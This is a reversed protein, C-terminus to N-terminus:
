DSGGGPKKEGLAVFAEIVMWLALITAAGNLWVLLTKGGAMFNVQNHFMAISTIVLMFICPIGTVLHRLGGKRKLYVTVLLLALSALLQNTAGFMPWLTLAGTGADGSSFALIGATIVAIGTAVWRNSLAPLRMEGALEAIVYRQLRTATDLTTGAFSAIFVGMIVIGLSQPIGISAMMNASGIVVASVKAGLGGATTWSGYHAQWAQTGQLIEGNPAEYGMGIGAAVAVIVLVALAGEWLMSGYGVFLADRENSVQKASTGSAVLSHFGSIAGCAITVFLFPMIPPAGVPSPNFRPAVITLDGSLGSVLVGAALLGMAIFLQWANMYDRPQLLTTVPLTSALYAYLLLVITWVGTAPMNGISPMTLPMSHGQTVTAYMALVAFTTALGVVARGKYIMYGLIVALPIEMWIPFVSQPYMDFLTAIVLGFIAIVIWLELFVILFFILRIRRNIYRAAIEAISKGENRLSIVLSGLDHVAGMVISGVLVWILAPLWGWIIGIAPGVIPGTGAISTYHHGFIIGKRTPVYDVGDALERSPVKRDARLRFVKNALFRGYTHYAVIYGLFSLVMLLLSGM